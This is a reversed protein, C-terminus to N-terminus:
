LFGPPPFYPILYVSHQGALHGPSVSSAPPVISFLFIQCQHLFLPILLFLRRSLIESGAECLSISCTIKKLYCTIYEYSGIPVPM